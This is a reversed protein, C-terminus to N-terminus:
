SREDARYLRYAAARVSATWVSATRSPTSTSTVTRTPLVRAWGGTGRARRRARIEDASRHWPGTTGRTSGAINRYLATFAAFQRDHVARVAPDPRYIAAVAVRSPVEHWGLAGIGVGSILAAGRANALVPDAIQHIEINLVDAM